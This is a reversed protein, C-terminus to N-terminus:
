HVYKVEDRAVHKRARREKNWERVAEERTEGTPGHCRCNKCEVAYMNFATVLEMDHSSCDCPEVIHAPRREKM